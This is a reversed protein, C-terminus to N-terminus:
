LISHSTCGRLQSVIPRGVVKYGGKEKTSRVATPEFLRYLFPIEGYYVVSSKVHEEVAEPTKFKSIFAQVAM